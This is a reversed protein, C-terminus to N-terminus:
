SFRKFTCNSRSLQSDSDGLFVFCNFTAIQPCSADAFSYAYSAIAASLIKLFERFSKAKRNVTTNIILSLIMMNLFCSGLTGCVTEVDSSTSPSAEWEVRRGFPLNLDRVLRKRASLTCYVTLSFLLKFNCLFEITHPSIDDL